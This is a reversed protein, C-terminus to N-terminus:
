QTHWAGFLTIKGTYHAYLAIYGNGGGNVPGIQGSWNFESAFPCRVEGLLYM